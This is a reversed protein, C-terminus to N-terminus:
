LATNLCLKASYILNGVGILPDYYALGLPTNYLLWPNPLYPNWTLGPQVPIITSQSLSTVIPTPLGTTANVPSLAPSWLPWLTNYPPMAEWYQGHAASSSILSFAVLVIIGLIINKWGNNSFISKSFM